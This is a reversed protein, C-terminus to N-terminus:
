PRKQAQLSEEYRTAIGIRQLLNQFRVDDVFPLFEDTVQMWALSRARVVFARELWEFMDDPKNLGAYITAIHFPSVYVSKSLEELRAIIGLAEDTMGAIAYTYGLASLPLSHGGDLDVALRFEDIANDYMKHKNHLHGKIWHGGWFDNNFSILKDVEASAEIYKGSQYLQWGLNLSAALSLPNLKKADRARAVAEDNRGIAELVQSHWVYAQFLSPNLAIARGLQEVATEVDWGFKFSIIGLFAQPEALDPNLSLAKMALSHAEPIAIVPSVMELGHGALLCHCSALGAYAEAYTPEIQIAQQYFGISRRFGEASFQNYFYRGKLYAEYAIPNLDIFDPSASAKLDNSIQAAIEAAIGLM